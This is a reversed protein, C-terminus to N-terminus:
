LYLRFICKFVEAIFRYHQLLKTQWFIQILERIEGKVDGKVLDRIFGLITDPFRYECEEPGIKKRQKLILMAMYNSAIM